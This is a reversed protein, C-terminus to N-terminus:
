STEARLLDLAGLVEPVHGKVKVKRWIGVISGNGDILFTSREIGRVQRGYMQKLKIVGFLQCAEEERDSILPFSLNFKEAFKQHAQLSDRSIGFITAGAREFESSADRFACSELTCGPTNDRPYFYLVVFKGRRDSLRIKGDPWCPLFFDPASDGIKLEKEPM